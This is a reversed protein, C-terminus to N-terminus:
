RRLLRQRISFSGMGAATEGGNATSSQAELVYTDDDAQSESFDWGTVAVPAGFLLQGTSFPM